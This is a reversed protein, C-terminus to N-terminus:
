HHRHHEDLAHSHAHTTPEHRHPHSHEAAPYADHHHAHHLDDHSHAHDHELAAHQHVHEHRETLHFWVGLACLAGSVTTALGGIREGIAAALAAGVFPACAFISGTRAAGIRRQARLYLRLSAGYGVAGCAALGLAVHWPPLEENFARALAASVLTGLGAKTLVVQTPDRDALPRGVANDAAWALTAVIVALVGWRANTGGESGQAVLLAGAATMAVLAAGARRGVPERWLVRAMVVTFLAELNLLLSATV